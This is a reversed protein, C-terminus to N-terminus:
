DYLTYVVLESKNKVLFLCGELIFFTDTGIGGLNEGLKEELLIKGEDNLVILHNALVNKNEVYVSIVIWKKWELYEVGRSIVYETSKDLFQRVTEFDPAGELYLAPRISDIQNIKTQVGWIGETVVGTEINISSQVLEDRTGYGWIEFENWDCFSFDKVEWLLKGKFIDFASRFLM